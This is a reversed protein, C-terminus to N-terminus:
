PLKYPVDSISLHYKASFLRGKGHSRERRVGRAREGVERAVEIRANNLPGQMAYRIDCKGLQLEQQVTWHSLAEAEVWVRYHSVINLRLQCTLPAGLHVLLNLVHIVKVSTLSDELKELTEVALFLQPGHSVDDLSVSWTKVGLFEADM